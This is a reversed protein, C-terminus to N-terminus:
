PYLLFPGRRKEFAALDKEDHAIIQDVSDGRMLSELARKNGLLTMINAAKWDTPYLNRLTTAITFGMRVPQIAEARTVEIRVGGCNEGAFTSSTPTFHVPIFRGGALKARNLETALKDADIYPAGVQEFPLNTGRGVSVNTTELLGVGPYLMAELPTRLNPSPAIWSLGTQSWSMSRTWGDMSVVHLDAGINREANFLRALEGVTMGHRIPIPHYGVFSERDADLLPGELALGGLPNPRDLVVFRLKRKAAEELMYGLTTIYTYFRTGADQLDFVLTDLDKFANDPPRKNQGYLSFIPLGTATDKGNAILNDATGTLGHEPTFLALLSLKDHRVLVDITREGKENKGTHNTILGIKRGALLSFGQRELQDIGSHVPSKALADATEKSKAMLIAATAVDQRVQKARGKGGDPHVANALLVVAHQRMLDIWFATGTFGTHGLGEFMSLLGLSRKESTNPLPQLELLQSVITPSLVPKGEFQGNNVLVAVFKAIDDATSFLGANGSVGGLKRATPDHVRGVLFDDGERTTPAIRPLLPAAPLFTTDKMGLPTFINKQSFTDLKEGTAKAVIEGLLIYSLDSYVYTEGPPHDLATELIFEVAQAPTKAQSARPSGAPLGSIHRLLHEITIRKDSRFSPLWKQVPDQLRLIGREVLLLISTATALPKTLSALDFITDSTMRAQAPEKARLGYARRFVVQGHRLVVLTAGPIENREIAARVAADFRAEDAPSLRSELASSASSAASPLQPASISDIAPPSPTTVTSAIPTASTTPPPADSRKDICGGLFIGSLVLHKLFRVISSRIGRLARPPLANATIV